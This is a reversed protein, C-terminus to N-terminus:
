GAVRASHGCGLLGTRRELYLETGFQDRYATLSADLYRMRLPTPQAVGGSAVQATPDAAKIATYAEHYLRAYTAPETNDQWKVDPENGVLWLSGPNARAITAITEVDPSLGGGRLRLMQVYVVGGPRAPSPNTNWDVYWGLRLPEVNYHEISGTAVGVGWRARSQWLDTSPPAVTHIPSPSPSPIPTPPADTATPGTETTEIPEASPTPTDTATTMKTPTHTPILPEPTKTPPVATPHRTPPSTANQALHKEIAPRGIGFLVALILLASAGVILLGIWSLPRKSPM